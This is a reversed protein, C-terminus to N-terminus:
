AMPVVVMGATTVAFYSVGWNPMSSSLLAVKDGPKLGASTLSEQVQKIRKGVESFTLEEGDLMTFAVKDAFKEISSRVLEYLTKMAM